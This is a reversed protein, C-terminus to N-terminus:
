GGGPLRAKKDPYELIVLKHNPADYGYEQYFPLTALRIRYADIIERKFEPFDKPYRENIAHFKRIADEIQLQEIRGVIAAYASGSVSIPDQGTIRPQVKKAGKAEEKQADRVDGTTKGLISRFLM